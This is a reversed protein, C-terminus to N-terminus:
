NRLVVSTETSSAVVGGGARPVLVTLQITLLDGVRRISFGAEDVLGDGDDDLGNALEGAGLEAVGTCLVVTQEGATGIGRVLVLRREDVLGDGDEDTGDDTEGPELELFIRSPAGWVVVGANTVDAPRQFTLDSTGLASTPDPVLFSAGVGRLEDAVRTLARRAQSEVKDAALMSRTHDQSRLQFLSVSGLILGMMAVGVVLEILTFAARARGASRLASM